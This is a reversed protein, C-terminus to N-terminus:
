WGLREHNLLFPWYRLATSQSPRSGGVQPGPLLAPASNEHSM